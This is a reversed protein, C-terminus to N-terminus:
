GRQLISLQRRGPQVSQTGFYYGHVDRQDGEIHEGSVSPGGLLSGEPFQGLDRQVPQLQHHVPIGRPRVLRARDSMDMFAQERESLLRLDESEM